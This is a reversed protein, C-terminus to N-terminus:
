RIVEELTMVSMLAVRRDVAWIQQRVSQQMALPDTSTRVVISNAPFPAATYPLFVQPRVDQQLGANRADGVGGVIEFPMSGNPGAARDTVGLTMIRGLPEAGQLYDQVFRRNVVVVKRAGDVDTRSLVRGRVLPLGIARFYDE